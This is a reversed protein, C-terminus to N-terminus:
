TGRIVPKGLMVRVNVEIRDTTAMSKSEVRGARSWSDFGESSLVVERHWSFVGTPTLSSASRAIDNAAPLVGHMRLSITQDNM